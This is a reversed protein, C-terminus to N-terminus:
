EDLHEDYWKLLHVNGMKDGVIFAYTQDLKDSPNRSELMSVITVASTLNFQGLENSLGSGGYIKITGNQHAVILRQNLARTRFHKMDTVLSRTSAHELKDLGISDASCEGSTRYLNGNWDAAM